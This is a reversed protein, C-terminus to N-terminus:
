VEHRHNRMYYYLFQYNRFCLQCFVFGDGVWAIKDVDDNNEIDVHIIKRCCKCQLAVHGYDYNSM